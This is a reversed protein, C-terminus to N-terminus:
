DAAARGLVAAITLGAQRLRWTLQDRTLGLERAALNGDRHRRLAAEVRALEADRDRAAAIADLLGLHALRARLTSVPLAGGRAALAVVVEPDAAVRALTGRYEALKRALLERLSAIDTRPHSAAPAPAATLAAPPASRGPLVLDGADLADIGDPALLVSRNIAHELGRLNGATAWRAGALAAHGAPTLQRIEPRGFRQRAAALFAEALGPLDGPRQDLDPLRLSIEALRWFLDERFRGQAVMQELDQSAAAVVQLDVAVEEADGLASYRGTQVLRLLRAQLELPLAGIEDIFLTGGHALRAKGFRGEAPADFGSRRAYGFLEAGMAESSTVQGCDLIVFPGERRRSMFHFTEALHSKGTGTPGLLLLGVKEARAARELPGLVAARYGADRSEFHVRRHAAAAAARVTEVEASVVALHEEVRVLRRAMGLTREALGALDCVLEIDDPGFPPQEGRRDAYLVGALSADPRGSEPHFFRIPVALVSRVDHRRQSVSRSPLALEQTTLWPVGSARVQDLVSASAVMPIAAQAVQTGDGDVARWGRDPQWLAVLCANAGLARQGERAVDAVAVAFDGPQGMDRRLLERLAALHRSAVDSPPPPLTTVLPVLAGPVGKAFAL